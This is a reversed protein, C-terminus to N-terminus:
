DYKNEDNTEILDNELQNYTNNKVIMNDIPIENLREMEQKIVRKILSNKLEL